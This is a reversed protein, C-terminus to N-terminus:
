KVSKLLDCAKKIVVDKVEEMSGRLTCGSAAPHGGGGFQNALSNVDIGDNSRFSVKILGKVSEKFAVAIKVGKVSRPFNVFDQTDEIKLSSNKLMSKTIHIWAISGDKTTDLTSLVSTLLRIRYVSTGEYIHKYVATPDIGKAVLEGAIKFTRSNTNSYRFSGTDTLIAIYIYLAANKGIDLKMRKFLHYVQEGSCSMEPEVWNISGFRTNSIHHDINIIPRTLYIGDKANGLRDLDTCDVVCAIDYDMSKSYKGAKVKSSDPIFRYADPIDEPPFLMVEKGASLLLERLAMMSGIADGELNQHSTVLFKRAKKDRIAKAIKELEM